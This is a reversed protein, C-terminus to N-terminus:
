NIIISWNSFVNQISSICNNNIIITGSNPFLAGINNSFGNSQCDISPLNIYKLNPCNGLMWNLDNKTKFNPLELSTLNLCGDFMGMCSTVNLTRMNTFNTLTLSHCQYCFKYMDEVNRLDLNSFDLSYLSFCYHFMGVMTKVNKTNLNSFNVSVLSFCDTLMDNMDEVNVTNFESTFAISTLNLNFGFLNNLSICNTINILIYVTHNGSLPFTYFNDQVEKVQIGDVVMETIKNPIYNMLKIKENDKKTQYTAKFSYKIQKGNVLVSNDNNDLSDNDLNNENNNDNDNDNDNDNGNDNELDNDNDNELDNDNDNGNDNKLDNNKRKKIKLGFYIGFFLILFILLLLLLIIIIIKCNNSQKKEKNIVEKKNPENSINHKRNYVYTRKGKENVLDVNTFEIM